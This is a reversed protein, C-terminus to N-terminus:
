AGADTRRFMWEGERSRMVPSNFEVGAVYRGLRKRCHRVKGVGVLRLSPIQLVVDRGEEMPRACLVKAGYESIDACRVRQSDTRGNAQVGSLVGHCHIRTRFLGRREVRRALDVAADTGTSAAFRWGLRICVAAIALSGAISILLPCIVVANEDAAAASLKLGGRVSSTHVEM